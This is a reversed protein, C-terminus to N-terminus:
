GCFYGSVELVTGLAAGDLFGERSHKDFLARLTVAPTSAKPVDSGAGPFLKDRREPFGALVGALINSIALFVISRSVPDNVLKQHSDHHLPFDKELFLVLKLLTRMFEEILVSQLDSADLASTNEQIREFYDYFTIGSLRYDSQSSSDSSAGVASRIQTKIGELADIFSNQVLDRTRKRFTEAFLVAFVSDPQEKGNPAAEQALAAWVKVDRCGGFSNDIKTLQTQVRSLLAITGIHSVIPSAM